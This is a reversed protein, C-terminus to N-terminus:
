EECTKIKQLKQKRIIKNPIVKITDYNFLVTAYNVDLDYLIPFCGGFIKDNIKIEYKYKVNSKFIIDIWSTIIGIDNTNITAKFIGEKIIFGTNINLYLNIDELYIKM